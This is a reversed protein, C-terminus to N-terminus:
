ANERSGACVLQSLKKSFGEDCVALVGVKKGLGFSFEELTIETKVVPVSTKGATFRIEKETKPSLDSALIILKAKRKLVAEGAADFGM